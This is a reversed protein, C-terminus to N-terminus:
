ARANLLEVSKTRYHRGWPNQIQWRNQILLISSREKTQNGVQQRERVVRSRIWWRKNLLIGNRLRLVSLNYTEFVIAGSVLEWGLGRDINAYRNNTENLKM